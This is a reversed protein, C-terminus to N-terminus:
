PADDEYWTGAHTTTEQSDQLNEPNQLLTKVTYDTQIATSAELLNRTPGVITSSRDSSSSSSHTNHFAQLAAQLAKIIDKHFQNAAKLQRVLEQLRINKLVIKDTDPQM